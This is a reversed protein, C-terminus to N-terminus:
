DSLARGRPFTLPEADTRARDRRRNNRRHMGAFASTSMNFVMFLLAGSFSLPAASTMPLATCVCSWALALDSGVVFGPVADQIPESMDITPFM